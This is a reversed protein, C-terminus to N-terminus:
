RKTLLVIGRATSAAQSAKGPIMLSCTAHKLFAVDIEAQNILIAGTGSRPMSM